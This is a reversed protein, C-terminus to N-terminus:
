PGGWSGLLSALDFAETICDGNLDTTCTEAPEGPACPNPCDGGNGVLFALDLAASKGEGILEASASPPFSAASMLALRLAEVAFAAAWWILAPTADRRRAFAFTLAAFLAAAMAGALARTDRSPEQVM